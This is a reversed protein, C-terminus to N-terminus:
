LAVGSAEIALMARAVEREGMIVHVAGHRELVEVEADSHARAIM